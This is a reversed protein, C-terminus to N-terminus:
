GDYNMNMPVLVNLVDFNSNESCEVLGLADKRLEGVVEMQMLSTPYPGGVEKAVYVEGVMPVKSAEM